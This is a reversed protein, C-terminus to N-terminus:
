YKVSCGYPVTKGPSFSKNASLKSLPTMTWQLARAVYNKASPIDEPNTSPHNDIAGQYVIKGQADVVFMHPTTKAEYLRGVKGMTDLLIATPQAGKEKKDLEAQTPTSYGQKGEASSIISLWVIDKNTHKKQLNQMNKYNKNYHKKVFPCGHNLWELVVTKGKFQSLRYSKGDSGFLTFDPAQKKTEVANVTMSMLLTLTLTRIISLIM